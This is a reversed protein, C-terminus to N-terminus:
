PILGFEKGVIAFISIIQDLDSKTLTAMVSVRLRQEALSVAPFEISNLFIGLAHFRSNVARISVTEPIAIPIIASQTEAKFGLDRLKKALYQANEHLQRILEPQEKMIDLGANVAAVTSMPLHASFMYSRSYFRLYDILEKSGTLFGGTVGFTKSFTGMSLAVKDQVKFHHATGEGYAGMVGTGHADDVVLYADHEECLASIQDLPALDGDMSYIGEVVVFTLGQTTKKSETLINKLKALDNHAFRTAKFRYQTRSLRIGDYLSAHNLEDYILHDGSRLLANVWGLNAQFGSGFLMADEQNKLKALKQELQRHESSMGNLLPPGGVGNGFKEITDQVSKIISPHSAFDLYNNSGLMWMEKEVNQHDKVMVKKSSKSILTRLYHAEGNEISQRYYQSFPSVREQLTQGEVIFFDSLNFNESNGPNLKDM